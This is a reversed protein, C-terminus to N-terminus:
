CNVKIKLLWVEIVWWRVRGEREELTALAVVIPARSAEVLGGVLFFGGFSPSGWGYFPAM